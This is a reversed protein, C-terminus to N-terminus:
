KCLKGTPLGLQLLWTTSAPLQHVQALLFYHFSQLRLQRISGREETRLWKSPRANRNPNRSFLWSQRTCRDRAAAAAPAPASSWDVERQLVQGLRVTGPQPANDTLSQSVVADGEGVLWVGCLHGVAQLEVGCLHDVTNTKDPAIYATARHGYTRIDM